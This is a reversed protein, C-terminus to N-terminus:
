ARQMQRRAPFGLVALWVDAAQHLRSAFLIMGGPWFEAEFEAIEFYAGLEGRPLAQPRRDPHHRGAKVVAIALEVDHFVESVIHVGDIEGGVAVVALLAVM